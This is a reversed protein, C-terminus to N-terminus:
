ANIEPVARYTYPGTITLGKAFPGGLKTAATAASSFGCSGSVTFRLSKGAPIKAGSMGSCAGVFVGHTDYILTEVYVEGVSSKGTNHIKGEQESYTDLSGAEPVGEVVLKSTDLDTLNAFTYPDGASVKESAWDGLRLAGGMVSTTEFAMKGKAPVWRYVPTASETGYSNGQEDLFDFVIDPILAPAESINQVEGFIYTDQGYEAFYYYLVVFTKSIKIPKASLVPTDGGASVATPTGTESRQSSPSQTKLIAIQTSQEAVSTELASITAETGSAVENQARTPVTWAFALGTTMILAAVVLYGLRRIVAWGKRVAIIHVRDM